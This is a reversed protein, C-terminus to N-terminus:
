APPSARLFRKLFTVIQAPDRQGFGDDVVALEPSILRPRTHANRFWRRLVEVDRVGLHLRGDELHIANIGARDALIRLEAETLLNHAEPPPPGYRDRMAREAELVDEVSTCENIRRYLEMRQRATPVYDDSLFADLGISINVVPPEEVPEGKLRAAARVLLRCYLNYGVAAIHGSQDPGLINGAGRMELDRLAIDFGAGLQSYRRIIDLRNEAAPTVPRDRPVFFYAYAKHIYRGVRGRLQHMEALGLLEARDIILTNANPIDLGNEIITTSVLVDVQGGTFRDMTEALDREPMQGHAVAVTAEPVIDRVRDAFGDITRVRNHIMYIQGERNLERLVAHRVLEPDFKGVKTQIAQRDRPPTQLASIER